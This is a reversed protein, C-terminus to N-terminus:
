LKFYFNLTFGLVSVPDPSCTTCNQRLYFTDLMLLKKYPLQVGFAYQNQNWAHRNRDWFLEGSAYPTFRFKSVKFARQATLKNRYRFNYVGDVWRFEARSRDQLLLRGFPVYKPTLQVVVRHERKTGNIQKTNLNEYGGGVVLNYQNDGDIDELVWQFIKRMRYNVIAGLKWQSLSADEGNHKEVTGQVSFRPNLDLSVRFAPWLEAASSDQGVVPGSLTLLLGLVVLLSVRTILMAVKKSGERM